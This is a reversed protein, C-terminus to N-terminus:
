RETGDELLLKTEVSVLWWPNDPQQTEPLPQTTDKYTFGAAGKQVCHNDFVRAHGNQDVQTTVFHEVGDADVWSQYKNTIYGEGYRQQIVRDQEDYWCVLFEQKKADTISYLNHNLPDRIDNLNPCHYKYTITSGNPLIVAKLDGPLGGVQCGNITEVEASEYYQYQVTLKGSGYNYEAETIVKIDAATITKWRFSITRGAPDTISALTGDTNWSYHTTHGNPQEIRLLNGTQADYIWRTGDKQRRTLLNTSPDLWIREGDFGPPPTYTPYGNRTDAYRWIFTRGCGSRWIFDDGSCTVKGAGRLVWNWGFEGAENAKNRYHRVVGIPRWNGGGLGLDEEAYHFEGTLSNTCYRVLCPICFSPRRVGGENVTVLGPPAVWYGPEHRPNGDMVYLPPPSVHFRIRTPPLVNGAVDCFASSYSGPQNLELVVDYETYEAVSWIPEIRLKQPNDGVYGEWCSATVPVSITESETVAWVRLASEGPDVPSYAFDPNMPESFVITISTPELCPLPTVITAGNPPNTGVVYPPQRDEGNSPDLPAADQGDCLGDGDTDSKLPDSGVVYLETYDDLGDGDSDSADVKTGCWVEEINLLGDGDWDAYRDTVRPVVIVFGGPTVAVVDKLGDGDIRGVDVRSVDDVLLEDFLAFELDGRNEYIEVKYGIAVLIDERCDSTVDGVALDAISETEEEHVEWGDAVRVYVEVVAPRTDIDCVVVEEAGGAVLQGCVVREYGVLAADIEYKEFRLGAVNLDWYGVGGGGCFVVEDAGDG